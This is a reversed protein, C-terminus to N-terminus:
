LNILGVFGAIVFVLGCVFMIIQKNYYCLFAELPNKPNYLISYVKDKNIPKSAYLNAVLQYDRKGVRYKLMPCYKKGMPYSSYEDKIRDYLAPNNRRINELQMKVFEKDDTRYQKIIKGDAKKFGRVLPQFYLMVLGRLGILMVITGIIVMITFLIRM